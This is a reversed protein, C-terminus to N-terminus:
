VKINNNNTGLNSLACLVQFLDRIVIQRSNLEVEKKETGPM